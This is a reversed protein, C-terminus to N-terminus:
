DNQIVLTNKPPKPPNPPWQQSSRKSQASTTNEVCVNEL